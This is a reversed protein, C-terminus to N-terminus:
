KKTIEAMVNNAALIGSMICTQFGGGIRTWAGAFYLGKLPGEQPLRDMFVNDPSYPTGLISGGPNGTYRMNTLPTSVEIVEIHERLGPIVKDARTLLKEAIKNKTAVYESPPIKY